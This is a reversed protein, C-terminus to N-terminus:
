ENAIIESGDIFKRSPVCVLRMGHRNGNGWTVNVMRDCLMQEDDYYAWAENKGTKYNKWGLRWYEVPLPCQGGAPWPAIEGSKLPGYVLGWQYVPNETQMWWPVFWGAALFDGLLAVWPNDPLGMAVSFAVYRGNKYTERKFMLREGEEPSESCPAGWDDVWAVAVPERPKMGVRCVGPLFLGGSPSALSEGAAAGFARVIARYVIPAKAAAMRERMADSVVVRRGVGFAERVELDTYNAKLTAAILAILRRKDAFRDGGDRGAELAALQASTPM